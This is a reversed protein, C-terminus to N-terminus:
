NPLVNCKAAINVKRSNVVNLIAGPKVQVSAAQADGTSIVCNNPTGTPIIVHTVASPVRNNNWNAAVHWSNSITGQWRAIDQTVSVNVTDSCGNGNIGIVRYSGTDAASPNLSNWNLKFSTNPYISNLNFLDSGCVVFVTTDNGLFPRDFLKLTYNSNSGVVVPNSSKVRIKYGIGDPLSNPLLCRIISDKVATLTGIEIENTFDGSANSLYAKFTNGANYTGTVDYGVKFSDRVCMINKAVSNTVIQPAALPAALDFSDRYDFSWAQLSDRSRVFIYHKGAAIGSINAIVEKAPLNNQPTLAVQVAKGYGPDTDIYYEMQSIIRGSTGTFPKIFLWKNDISWNNNVDKSRVGITHVGASLNTLSQSFSLNALDQGPTIAIATAKGYGPDTDIYWEVKTINPISIANFSYPKVFLWKNDLSWAGRADKSRVGVIHVGEFLPLININFSIGNINQGPTIAIPTANGYGPDTDLYWEVNTINPNTIANFNYPKVFLWKNDLSWAGNVDRSRVGVIHVGELLPTTNIDFSLGNLNQGPTIAIPTANGYGPDNDLYWEVKNINPQAILTVAILNLLFIFLIKKYFVAQQHIPYHLFKISINRAM